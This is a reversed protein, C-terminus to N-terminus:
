IVSIHCHMTKITQILGANTSAGLYNEGDRLHGYGNVTARLGFINAKSWKSSRPRDIILDRKSSHGRETVTEMETKITTQWIYDALNLGYSGDLIAHIGIAM